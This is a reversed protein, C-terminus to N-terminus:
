IEIKTANLTQAAKIKRQLNNYKEYRQANAVIYREIITNPDIPGGKQVDATFLDQLEEYDM